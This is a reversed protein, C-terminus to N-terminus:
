VISQLVQQAGDAFRGVDHQSREVALLSRQAHDLQWQSSRFADGFHQRELELRHQREVYDIRHDVVL